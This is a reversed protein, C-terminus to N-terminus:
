IGAIHQDLLIKLTEKEIGDVRFDSKQIMIGKGKYSIRLLEETKYTRWEYGIINEFGIVDNLHSSWVGEKSIFWEDNVIYLSSYYLILFILILLLIPLQNLPYVAAVVLYGVIMIIIIRLMIQLQKFQKKSSGEFRLIAKGKEEIYRKEARKRNKYLAFGFIVFIAGLILLDM